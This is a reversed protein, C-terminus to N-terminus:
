EISVHVCKCDRNFNRKPRKNNHVSHGEFVKSLKLQRKDAFFTPVHLFKQKASVVYNMLKYM